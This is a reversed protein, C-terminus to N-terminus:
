KESSFYIQKEKNNYDTISKLYKMNNDVSIKDVFFTDNWWKTADISKNKYVHYEDGYYNNGDIYTIIKNIMIQQDNAIMINIFKFDEIYSSPLVLDPYIDQLYQDSTISSLIDELNKIKKDLLKADKVQDYKFGKCVLYKESNSSRSFLPKCIYSEDYFSSILYIIKLSVITFTEFLKLVFSGKINQVRIAAIAEGLVLQYAEQEQFNEDDWNFGGDATVLDSYKKSKSIEKKFLSITKVNTIDGNSKGKYKNATELPVTKHINILNPYVKEYHGLFQKGMEINNGNEPHITVGFYKDKKLDYNYKERFKLVAQLFSGPGEALAAYNLDKKSGIDFYMLIEWMKYFARSLIKPDNDKMKFFKKTNSTLDEEHNSITHEFPNVIYYFKNKSELQNTREMSEKTRHIFYHYGLSLLPYNIIPSMIVDKKDIPRDLIKNDGKELKFIFPKYETM